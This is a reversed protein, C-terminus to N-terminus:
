RSSFPSASRLMSTNRREAALREAEKERREKEEQKMEAQIQRNKLEENYSDSQLLTQVAALMKDKGGFDSPNLNNDVAYNVINVMAEVNEGNAYKDFYDLNELRDVIKKRNEFDLGYMTDYLKDGSSMIKPLVLSDVNIKKTDMLEYATFATEFPNDLGTVVKDGTGENKKVDKLIMSVAIEHGEKSTGWGQNQATIGSMTISRALLNNRTELMDGFNSDTDEAGSDELYKKQSKQILATDASSMQNMRVKGVNFQNEKLLGAGTMFDISGQLSEQSVGVYGKDTLAVYRSGKYTGDKNYSTEEKVKLKRTGDLGNPIDIDIFDSYDPAPGDLDVNKIKKAVYAALEVDQTKRYVEQYTQLGKSEIKNGAKDLKAGTKTGLSALIDQNAQHLDSNINGTLQSVGPIKKILKTLSSGITGDGHLSQLNKYYRDKDGSILFQKNAAARTDFAKKYKDFYGDVLSNQLATFQSKSYTGPSYTGNLQSGVLGSLEARLYADKGGEFEEAKKLTAAFNNAENFVSDVKLKNAMLEENNMLKQHRQQMIDQTVNLAVKLGLAKWKSKKARKEARRQADDNRKRMDSLLSQGFESAKM